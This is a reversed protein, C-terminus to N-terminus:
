SRARVMIWIGAAIMPVSLIMGMTLHFPFDPMHIDPERFFEVFIRACGYGALFLGTVAGTKKLLGFRFIAINMIVFLLFGELFAEYLQSPHRPLHGPDTPFVMSWPGNWPRGYLEGNIFNAIRGFFLGVPAAAALLDGTALPVLGHKRCYLYGALVVGALGGHFSMGGNWLMLAPPFPLFGFLPKWPSVLIDPSYFLVYGLRGGAIVGLAIWFALNELLPLSLSRHGTDPRISPNKLLLAIYWWGGVIGAIYALSYWRILVPGLSIAVPDIDPYAIM